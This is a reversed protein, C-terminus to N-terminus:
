IYVASHILFIKTYIDTCILIKFAYSLLNTYSIKIGGWILYIVSMCTGKMSIVANVAPCLTNSFDFSRLKKGFNRVNSSNKKVTFSASEM